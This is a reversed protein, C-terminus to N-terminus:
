KSRLRFAKDLYELAKVSNNHKKLLQSSNYYVEALLSRGESDAEREVLPELLDLAQQYFENAQEWNDLRAFANGAVCFYRARDLPDEGEMVKFLQAAQEMYTKVAGLDELQLTIQVLLLVVKREAAKTSTDEPYGTVLRYALRAVKYAEAYKKAQFHIQANEVTLEQLAASEKIEQWTQESQGLYFCAQQYDGLGALRAGEKFLNSAKDNRTEKPLDLLRQSYDFAKEPDGAALYCRSTEWLLKRYIVNSNLPTASLKLRNMGKYFYDLAKLHQELNNYAIGTELELQASLHTTPAPPTIGELLSRATELSVLAAEPENLANYFGGELLYFQAQDSKNLRALFPRLTGLIHEVQGFDNGSLAVQTQLLQSQLELNRLQERDLGGQAKPSSILGSPRLFYDVPKSLRAALKELNSLTPRTKGLEVYSLYASTFLGKCLDRQSIKQNTRAQRIREGLLELDISKLQQQNTVSEGSQPLTAQKASM